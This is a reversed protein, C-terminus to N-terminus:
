RLVAPLYLEIISTSVAGVTIPFTASGLGGENDTVTVTVTYKGSAAYTHLRNGLSGTALASFTDTPGAGWDVTVDWSAGPSSDTFSGLGFSKPTGAIAYQGAPATVQPPTNGACTAPGRLSQAGQDNYAEVAYCYVQDHEVMTDSFSPVASEGALTWPGTPADARLIRYGTVFEGANGSWVMDLAGAFEPNEGVLKVRSPPSLSGLNLKAADNATTINEGSTVLEAYLPLKGGADLSLPVVIPFILSATANFDLPDPVAQSGLPEGAASQGRYLNVTVDSTPMRGVNRVTVSINITAGPAPSHATVQLPDLAPDAADELTLFIVPNAGAQLTGVQTTALAQVSSLPDDGTAAAAQSSVALASHLVVARSNVPNIAISSLWQQNPADTLYLPPTSPEVDTFRSLSIQGLAGRSTQDDFRRFVLLSEDSIHELDPQEAYISNGSADQMRNRSWDGNIYLATWLQGNTGLVGVEGDPTPERVLFAAQLGSSSVTITPSDIRAPLSDTNLFQWDGNNGYAVALHRDDGTRLDADLDYVWAVYAYGFEDIAVAVDNNLVVNELGAAPYGLLAPAGFLQTNPDYTSVAIRQDGRTSADGDLDTTWALVAGLDTAAAEALGDPRSDNTLRIPTGWGDSWLAYFIEQHRMHAAPDEDGLAAAEAATLTNETWAVMPTHNAGVFAVTPSQSSHMPNSLAVPDSWVGTNGDQIRAMIQVQPTAGEATTNEVYASLMRGDLSAAVVPSRFVDPLPPDSVDSAAVNGSATAGQCGRGFDTLNKTTRTKVLGWLASSWFVLYLRGGVYPDDFYVDPTGSLVVRLPVAACIEGGLGGGGEVVGLLIDASLGVEVGLGGVGTLTSDVAPSLPRVEGELYLGVGFNLGGSVYANVIGFYTFILIKAFPVSIIDKQYLELPGYPIAVHSPNRIDFQVLGLGPPTINERLQGPPLIPLSLLVADAFVETLFIRAKGELDFSGKVYVGTNFDNRIEGLFPVTGLPYHAPLLDEVYPLVGEFQYSSSDVDWSTRSYPLPQMYPNSMPDGMVDIDYLSACQNQGAVVPTISVYPLIDGKNAPLRGVDFVVSYPASNDDLRQIVKGNVGYFEFIVNDIAGTTQPSATFTVDNKVGSVYVGFPRRVDEYTRFLGFDRIKHTFEVRSPYAKLATTPKLLETYTCTKRVALELFGDKKPQVTTTGLETLYPVRGTVAYLYPGPAVNALSFAGNAALATTYLVAGSADMLQFQADIADGNAASAGELPLQGSVSGNAPPTITLTACAVEANEIGVVLACIQVPGAPYTANVPIQASYSGSGDAVVDEIGMTMGDSVAALRVQASPPAGQGGVTVTGGAVVESPDINVTVGIGGPVAAPHYVPELDDATAVPIVPSNTPSMVSTVAQPESHPPTESQAFVLTPAFSQVAVAVVLLWRLARM